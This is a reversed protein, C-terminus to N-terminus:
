ENEDVLRVSGIGRTGINNGDADIIYLGDPDIKRQVYGVTGNICEKGHKKCVVKDGVTLRKFKVWQIQYLLLEIDRNNSYNLWTYDEFVNIEKDTLSELMTYVINMTEGDINHTM